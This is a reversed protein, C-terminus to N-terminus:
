YRIFPTTIDIGHEVAMRKYDLIWGMDCYPRCPSFPVARFGTKLSLSEGKYHANVCCTPYGLLYGLDREGEKTNLPNRNYKELFAHVAPSTKQKTFFHMGGLGAILVHDDSRAKGAYTLLLFIQEAACPIRTGDQRNLAEREIDGLIMFLCTDRVGELVSIYDLFADTRGFARKVITSSVQLQSSM